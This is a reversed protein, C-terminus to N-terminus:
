KTHQYCRDFFTEVEECLRVCREEVGLTEPMQNPPLPILRRVRLSCLLDDCFDNGLKRNPNNPDETIFSRVGQSGHVTKCLSCMRARRKPAEASPVRRFVLGRLIGRHQTVIFGRSTGPDIWGFFDLQDWQKTELDRPLVVQKRHRGPFSILIESKELRRM